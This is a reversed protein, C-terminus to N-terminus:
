QYDELMKEVREIQTKDMIRGGRNLKLFLNLIDKKTANRVEAVSINHNKFTYKDTGSLQSYTKGRYTIRDEYFELLTNLRQKGDLIEYSYGDSKWDEDSRHILVFKGIDINKFVSDLLYEKDASNWVFDRQYDPNMQIGFFYARHLLSEITQNNFNLRIDDNETFKTDEIAERSRVEMWRALRYTNYTYPHGYNNNTAECYLLYAKGDALVEEVVASNLAGFLVSDGVNFHYTPEPTFKIEQELERYCHQKEQALREETTLPKKEVKKRAM